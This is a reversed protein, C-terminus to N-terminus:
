LRQIEEVPHFLRVFESVRFSGIIGCDVDEPLEELEAEYPIEDTPHFGGIVDGEPDEELTVSSCTKHFFCDVCEVAGLLKSELVSTTEANEDIRETFVPM